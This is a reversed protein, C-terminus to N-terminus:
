YPRLSVPPFLESEQEPFERELLAWAAQFEEETPAYICAKWAVLIGDPNPDYTRGGAARSQGDVPRSIQNSRSGNVSYRQQRHELTLLRAAIHSDRRDSPEDETDEDLRIESGKGGGSEGLVSGELSGHWKKRINFVANKLAHWRCIFQKTGKGFVKTAAKKAGNDFDTILVDPIPINRAACLDKVQDFVWHHYKSGQGGVLAQFKTFTKALCDVGNGQILPMESDNVCYTADYLLLGPSERWLEINEEFTFFIRDIPADPDDNERGIQLYIGGGLGDGKLEHLFQQFPGRSGHEERKRKNSANRVDHSTAQAGHQRQLAEAVDISHNRPNRLLDHLAEQVEPRALTSRRHVPIAGGNQSPLHNHQDHGDRIAFQWAEKECNFIAKAKWDCGCRRSFEERSKVGPETNKTSQVLRARECELDIRLHFGRKDCKNSSRRKVIGFGCRQAQANVAALLAAFSPYQAFELSELAFLADTQPWPRSPPAGAPEDEVLVQEVPEQKVAPMAGNVTSPPAFIELADLDIPTLATDGARTRPLDPKSFVNPM